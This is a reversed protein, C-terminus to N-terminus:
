RDSPNIFALGAKLTQSVKIPAANPIVEPAPEFNRVWFHFDKVISNAYGRTVTVRM